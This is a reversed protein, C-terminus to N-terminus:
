STLVPANGGLFLYQAEVDSSLLVSHLFVDFSLCFFDSFLLCVDFFTKAKKQHSNKGIGNGDCHSCGWQDGHCGNKGNKAMTTM